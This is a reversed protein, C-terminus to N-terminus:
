FEFSLMEKLNDVRWLREHEYEETKEHAWITHFPVHVAYAGIQLAPAIDSRFSNGVMLLEAPSVQLETCLNHYAEETKDSVISVVDFFPALGSRRLKNEQDLLEGKTFVALRYRRAGREDTLGHLYRLTQEVGELPTADIHLLSKGLEVIRGIIDGTVTGRSVRVANEVLSITFAKCGYGMDAMNATETAFLAASVEEKSGWPALLRCYEHEVAEFHNQLEWLTDDADFAIARIGQLKEHLTACDTNNMM